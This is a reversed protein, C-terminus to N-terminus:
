YQRYANWPIADAVRRLTEREQDTPFELGHHILDDNNDQIPDQEDHRHKEDNYVDDKQSESLAILASDGQLDAM